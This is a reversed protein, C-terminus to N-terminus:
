RALGRSVHLRLRGAIALSQLSHALRAADHSDRAPANARTDAREPPLPLVETGAGGAAAAASAAAAGGPARAPLGLAESRLDLLFATAAADPLGERACAARLFAKLAGM